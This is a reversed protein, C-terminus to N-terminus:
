CRSPKGARVSAQQPLPRPAHICTNSKPPATRSQPATTLSCMQGHAMRGVRMCPAASGASGGLSVKSIKGKRDKGQAAAAQAQSGDYYARLGLLFLGSCLRRRARLDATPVARPATAMGVGAGGRGAMACRMQKLVLIAVAYWVIGTMSGMGASGQPRQPSQSAAAM